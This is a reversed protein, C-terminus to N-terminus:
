WRVWKGPPACDIRTLPSLPAPLVSVVLIAMDHRAAIEFLHPEVKGEGAGWRESRSGGGGGGGGGAEVAEEAEVVEEAQVDEGEGEGWGEGSGRGRLEPAAEVSAASSDDKKSSAM